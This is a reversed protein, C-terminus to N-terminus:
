RYTWKTITQTGIPQGSAGILTLETPNGSPSNSAGGWVLLGHSDGLPQEFMALTAQTINCHDGSYNLLQFFDTSLREASTTTYRVREVLCSCTIHLMPWSIKSLEPCRFDFEVTIGGSVQADVHIPDLSTLDCTTFEQKWKNGGEAIWVSPSAGVKDNALPYIAAGNLIMMPTPTSNGQLEFRLQLEFEIPKGGVTLVQQYTFWAWDSFFNRTFTGPEKKTANQRNPGKEVKDIWDLKALTGTRPLLVLGPTMTIRTNNELETQGEGATTLRPGALSCLQTGPPVYVGFGNGLDAEPGSVEPQLDGDPNIEDLGVGADRDLADWPLDESEIKESAGDEISSETHSAATGCGLFNAVLGVILGANLMAQM